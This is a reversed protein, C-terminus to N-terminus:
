VEYTSFVHCLSCQQKCAAVNVGKGKAPRLARLPERGAPRIHPPSSTERPKEEAAAAGNSYTVRQGVVSVSADSLLKEQQQVGATCKVCM